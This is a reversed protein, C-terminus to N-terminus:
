DHDRRRDEEEYIEIVCNPCFDRFMKNAEEYKMPLVYKSNCNKNACIMLPFEESVKPPTKEEQLKALREYFQEATIDTEM